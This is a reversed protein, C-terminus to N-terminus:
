QRILVRRVIRPPVREAVDVDEVFLALIEGVRM